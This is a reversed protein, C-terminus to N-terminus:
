HGLRDVMQSRPRWEIKCEKFQKILQRCEWMLLYHRAVKCRWRGCFQKVILMSDSYIRIRQQPHHLCAYRLAARVALWEADNNTHHRNSKDRIIVGSHHGPCRQRFVSWYVGEPSPNTPGLMGGDAWFRVVPHKSVRWGEKCVEALLLCSPQLCLCTCQVSNSEYM